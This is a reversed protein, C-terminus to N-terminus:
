WPDPLSENEHRKETDTQTGTDLKESAHPPHFYRVMKGSRIKTVREAAYMESLRSTATSKAQGIQVAVEAPLMGEKGANDLLESILQYVAERRTSKEEDTSDQLRVLNPKMGEITVSALDNEGETHFRVDWALRNGEGDGHNDKFCTWVVPGERSKEANWAMRVRAMSMGSGQFAARRHKQNEISKHTIVLTPVGLAHVANWFENVVDSDNMSGDIAASMSDVIIATPQDRQVMDILDELSHSLSRM